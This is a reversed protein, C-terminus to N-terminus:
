REYEDEPDSHLLQAPRCEVRIEKTDPDRNATIRWSRSGHTLILQADTWARTNGIQHISRSIYGRAILGSDAPAGLSDRAAVTLYFRDQKTASELGIVEPDISGTVGLLPNALVLVRAVFTSSGWRERAQPKVM